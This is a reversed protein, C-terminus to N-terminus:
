LTISFVAKLPLTPKRSSKPAQYVAVLQRAIRAWEFTSAVMEKAAAGMAALTGVAKAREITTLAQAINVPKNASLHIGAQHDTVYEGVNTATSVICPLGLGAAELVGTPFGESRSPHVFADTHSLLNLKKEGYQSGWFVLFDRVGLKKAQVELGERDPGDGILWLVGKGGYKRYQAFGEILLDLGKYHNILRGCFSFVPVEPRPIAAGEFALEELNQGNPILCKHPVKLLNDFADYQNKGLFHIAHAHRILSAEFAAFYTRKKVYGRKFAFPSLSGHPSFIYKVGASQLIRSATHFAPIFGGHLHVCADMGALGKLAAILNPDLKFGKLAHFLTLDYERAPLVENPTPTIGWIAVDHGDRAQFLALNHAVKSVGNMREPRAKGLILHIIKM